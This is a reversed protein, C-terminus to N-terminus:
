QKIMNLNNSVPCDEVKAEVVIIVEVVEVVEVALHWYHYNPERRLLRKLISLSRM